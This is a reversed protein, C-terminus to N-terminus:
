LLLPGCKPLAPIWFESSIFSSNIVNIADRVRLDNRLVEHRM